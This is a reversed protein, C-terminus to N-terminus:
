IVIGDIVKLWFDKSNDNNEVFNSIVQFVEDGFGSIQLIDEREKVQSNNTPTLDILVLKAKPNRAKFKKWESYMGTERQNKYSDVWSENDSVYIINSLEESRSNLERLAVSCDTGGGNRAMKASNTLVTDRPNLDVKHVQTDFLLIEANENTRLISAAFLAAVDVCKVLTTVSGRNGTIPSTMSGSTDVCVCTKGPLKPVNSIAIEMADQLANRVKVPASTSMMYSMMLQYPFVKARRVETESGLRQAVIEVLEPDDFVGYKVFNNLNMRNNHFGGNRAQESWVEKMEEATLFSDLLRFDVNPVGVSHDTKFKEYQQVVEPLDSFLHVIGGEKGKCIITGDKVQGGCMYAFLAAKEKSDPKPHSMRLMDRMSPDNGIYARFIQESTRSKFWDRIAHRIAGSSMNLKKGAQGSRGIQMFNRLMKGNDIVRDFVTRFLKADRGALVATLYAPMDKMYGNERSYIALQALFKNDTVEKITEKVLELGKEASAYYTGNFCNTCAIQAITHKPSTKYATGGADNFIKGYNTTFLNTNM